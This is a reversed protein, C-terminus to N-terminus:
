TEFLGREPHPVDEATAEQDVVGYRYPDGKKGVGSRPVIKEEVLDRLVLQVLRRDGGAKVKIEEETQAGDALADLIGKRIDQRRVAEATGGSTVLGTEKDFEVVTEELDEGSGRQITKVVRKDGRKRYEFLTDVAGFLATSGLTGDGDEGGGKGMHHTVLIHTGSGRALNRLPELVRTVEAYDNGDKIRVFLFLPDIVVLRPNYERILREVWKLADEPSSGFHLHLDEDSAGMQELHVRVEGRKEELALYLVTGCECGRGFFAEGRAVALALNRAMTSKGVKPKAVLMSIGGAPLMRDVIWAVEEEPESLLEAVSVLKRVKESKRNPSTLFHSDNSGSAGRYRDAIELCAAKHDGGHDLAAYLGFLSYFTAPDLPAANPTFCYFGRTGSRSTVACGSLGGGRSKGPRTWREQSGARGHFTWGHPLLIEALTAEANFRDVPSLTAGYENTRRREERDPELEPFADLRVLEGNNCRTSRGVGAPCSPLYFMRSADKCSPDVCGLGLRLAMRAYAGDWEERHVPSELLFVVRWKPHEASHGYTTHAYWRWRAWAETFHELPEGGDLDLVLCSVAVVNDNSRTKGEPYSAPSWLRGDKGNRIAHQSLMVCLEDESLVSGVPVNDAKGTFTSIAFNM